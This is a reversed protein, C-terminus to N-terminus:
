CRCKCFRMEYGVSARLQEDGHQAISPTVRSAGNAHRLQRQSRTDFDLQHHLDPSRLALRARKAGARDVFLGCDKVRGVAKELSDLLGNRKAALLLGLTGVVPIQLASASRRAAKDDLIAITGPNRYAYELVESEGQGLRWIALPSLAPNLDVVTLWSPQALFNAAPDETSAARIETAVARPIVPSSVLKPLLPLFGAKALVIMPSANLVAPKV